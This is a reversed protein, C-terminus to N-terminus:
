ELGVKYILARANHAVPGRHRGHGRHRQRSAQKDDATIEFVPHGDSDASQQTIDDAGLIAAGGSAGAARENASVAESVCTMSAVAAVLFSVWGPATLKWCGAGNRHAWGGLGFDVRECDEVLKNWSRSM